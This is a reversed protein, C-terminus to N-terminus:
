WVGAMGNLNLEIHITMMKNIYAMSYGCLPSYNERLDLWYNLRLYASKM